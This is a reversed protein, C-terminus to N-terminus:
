YGAVYLIPIVGTSWDIQWPGVRKKNLNCRTYTYLMRTRPRNTNPLSELAGRAREMAGGEERGRERERGEVRKRVYSAIWGSFALIAWKKQAGRRSTQRSKAGTGAADEGDGTANSRPRLRACICSLRRSIGRAGTPIVDVARFFCIEADCTNELSTKRIINRIKAVGARPPENLNVPAGSRFGGVKIKVAEIAIQAALTNQRKRACSLILGIEAACKCRQFINTKRPSSKAGNDIRIQCVPIM